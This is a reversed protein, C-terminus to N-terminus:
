TSAEKPLPRPIRGDDVLQQARQEADARSFRTGHCVRFNDYIAWKERADNTVGVLEIVAAGGAVAHCAGIEEPPPVTEPAGAQNLPTDAPEAEPEPEYVARGGLEAAVIDPPLVIQIPALGRPSSLEQAKLSPVLRDVIVKQASIMQDVDPVLRERAGGKIPRYVARGAAFNCLARLGAMGHELLLAKADASVRNKSNKPRGGKSRPKSPEANGAGSLGDPAESVAKAELVTTGDV